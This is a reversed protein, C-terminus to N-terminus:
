NSTIVMWVFRFGRVDVPKTCVDYSKKTIRKNTYGVIHKLKHMFPSLGETDKLLMQSYDIIPKVVDPLQDHKEGKILQGVTIHHEKLLDYPLLVHQKDLLQPLHVVSMTLSWAKAVQTIITTNNHDPRLVREILQHLQVTPSTLTILDDMTHPMDAHYDHQHSEIFEIFHQHTLSTAQSINKIADTVPHPRYRAKTYIEEMAELWWRFRIHASVEETTVYRIKALEHHLALLGFLHHRAQTPVSTLCALYRLYSAQKVSQINIANSDPM